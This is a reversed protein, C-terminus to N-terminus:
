DLRDFAPLGIKGKSKGGEIAHPRRKRRWKQHIQKWKDIGM